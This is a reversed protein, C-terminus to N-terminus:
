NDLFVKEVDSFIEKIGRNADIRNIEEEKFCKKFIPISKNFTVIRKKM